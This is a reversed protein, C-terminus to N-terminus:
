PKSQLFKIYPDEFEEAEKSSAGVRTYFKDRLHKDQTVRIYFEVADDTVSGVSRYFYGDSWFQGGWFRKEGFKKEKLFPFKKFVEHASIGKLKHVAFAPSQWSKLSVFIHAHDPMVRVVRFRMQWKYAIEYFQEYVFKQIDGELVDHRYKPCFVIHFWSQGYSHSNAELKQM